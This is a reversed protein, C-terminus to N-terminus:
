GGFGGGGARGISGSRGFGGHWGAFGHGGVAPAGIVHGSGHWSAAPHGVPAFTGAGGPRVGTVTGDSRSARVTVRGFGAPPAPLVRSPQLGVFGNFRTPRPAAV